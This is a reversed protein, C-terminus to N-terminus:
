SNIYRELRKRFDAVNRLDVTDMYVDISAKRWTGNWPFYFFHGHSTDLYGVHLVGMADIVDCTEWTRGSCDTRKPEKCKTSGPFPPAQIRLMNRLQRTHSRVVDSKGTLGHKQLGKLIFQCDIIQEALSIM